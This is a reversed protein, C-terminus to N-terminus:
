LLKKEHFIRRFASQLSGTQSLWKSVKVPGIANEHIFCSTGKAYVPVSGVWLSKRKKKKKKRRFFFFDRSPLRFSSVLHVRKFNAKQSRGVGFCDWCPSRTTTGPIGAQLCSPPKPLLLNGGEHSILHSEEQKVYVATLNRFTKYPHM